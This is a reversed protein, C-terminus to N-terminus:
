LSCSSAHSWALRGSASPQRGEHHAPYEDWDKHRSDTGDEEEVKAEAEVERM